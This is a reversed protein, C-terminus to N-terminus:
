KFRSLQDTFTKDWDSLVQAPATGGVLDQLGKRMPTTMDAVPWQFPLYSVTRGDKVAAALPNMEAPLTGAADKFPSFAGSQTLYFKMNEPSSFYNLYTRAAAANKTKANVMMSMGALDMGIPKSGAAGGPYPIMQFKLNPNNKQVVQVGWSGMPIMAVRGASFESYANDFSDIGLSIKPNYYGAKGYQNITNLVNIWPASNFKVKGATLQKDYDPTTRYLTNAAIFESMIEYGWADKGGLLLPTIGKQKLSDMTKVLGPADTPINAGAKKLLDTNVFMGIGSYEAVMQYVKKNATSLQRASPVMRSVWPQGTLDLLYGARSWLVMDNRALGMFIDPADGGALRAKIIDKYAGYGNIPEYQVKIDPYKKMFGDNIQRMMEGEIAGYKFGTIRLTTQAMAQGAALLAALVLMTKMRPM